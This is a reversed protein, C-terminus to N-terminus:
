SVAVHGAATQRIREFCFVQQQQKICRKMQGSRVLGVQIVKGSGARRVGVFEGKSDYFTVTDLDRALVAACLLVLLVV